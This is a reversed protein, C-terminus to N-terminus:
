RSGLGHSHSDVATFSELPIISDNNLFQIENKSVESEIFGKTPIYVIDTLLGPVDYSCKGLMRSFFPPRSEGKYLKPNQGFVTPWVIKGKPLIPQM